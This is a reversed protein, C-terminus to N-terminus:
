KDFSFRLLGGDDDNVDVLLDGFCCAFDDTWSGGSAVNHDNFFALPVVVDAIWTPLGGASDRRWLGRTCAALM